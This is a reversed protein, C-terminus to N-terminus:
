QIEKKNLKILYDKFIEDIRKILTNADEGELEITLSDYRKGIVDLNFKRILKM